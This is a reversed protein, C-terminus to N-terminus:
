QNVLTILHLFNGMSFFSKLSSSRMSTIYLQFTRISGMAAQRWQQLCICWALHVGLKFFFRDRRMPYQYLFYPSKNSCPEPATLASAAEMNSLYPPCLMMRTGQSYPLNFGIKIIELSADPPFLTDLFIMGLPIEFISSFIFNKM